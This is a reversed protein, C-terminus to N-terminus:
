AIEAPIIFIAIATMKANYIVYLSEGDLTLMDSLTGIGNENVIVTNETVNLGDAEFYEITEKNENTTTKVVECKLVGTKIFEYEDASLYLATGKGAVLYENEGIITIEDVLGDVTKVYILTNQYTDVLEDLYMETAEESGKWNMAFQLPDTGGKVDVVGFIAFANKLTYNMADDTIYYYGYDVKAEPTTTKDIM